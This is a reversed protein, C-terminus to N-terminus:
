KKKPVSNVADVSFAVLHKCLWPIRRPNTVKPAAGNSYKIDTAKHKALAVECFFLFYPCSCSVWADDALAAARKPKTYLRYELRRKGNTDYAEALVQKYTLKKKKDEVMSVKTVKGVVSNANKRIKAPTFGIMKSLPLM